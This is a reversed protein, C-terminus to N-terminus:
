FCCLQAQDGTNQVPWPLVAPFPEDAKVCKEILRYWYWNIGIDTDTFTMKESQKPFVKLLAGCLKSTSSVGAGSLWLEPMM